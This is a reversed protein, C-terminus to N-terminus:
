CQPGSAEDPVKNCTHMTQLGNVYNGEKRIKGYGCTVAYM